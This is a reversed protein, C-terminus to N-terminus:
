EVEKSYVVELPKYGAREYFKDFKAAQPQHIYIMLIRKAGRRAAEAEFERLLRVGTLGKRHQPNVYWYGEHAVIDGTFQDPVVFGGISGKLEGTETEDVLVIGSGAKIHAAWTRIFLGEDLSGAIRGEDFFRHATPLLLPLEPGTLLRIM